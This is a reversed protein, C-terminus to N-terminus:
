YPCIQGFMCWYMCIFPASCLLLLQYDLRSSMVLVNFDLTRVCQLEVMIIDQCIHLKNFPCCKQLLVSGTRSFADYFDRDLMLVPLNSYWWIMTHILKPRHLFEWIHEAPIIIDYVGFYFYWFPIVKSTYHFLRHSISIRSYIIVFLCPFSTSICIKELFLPDPSSYCSCSVSAKFREHKNVHHVCQDRYM